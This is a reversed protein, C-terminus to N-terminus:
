FSIATESRKLQITMYFINYLPILVDDEIPNIKEEDLCNRSFYNGPYGMRENMEEIM